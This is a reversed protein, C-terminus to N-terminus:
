KLRNFFEKASIVETKRNDRVLMVFERGDASTVSSLQVRDSSSIRGNKDHDKFSVVENTKELTFDFWGNAKASIEAVNTMFQELTM